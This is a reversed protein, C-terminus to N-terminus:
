ASLVIFIGLLSWAADSILILNPLEMAFIQCASALLDYSHGNFSVLTFTGQPCTGVNGVSTSINNVTQVFPSNGIAIEFASINSAVTDTRTVVPLGATCLGSDTASQNCDGPVGAATSPATGGAPGGSGNGKTAVGVTSGAVTAAAYYNQAVGNGL